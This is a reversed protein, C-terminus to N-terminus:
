FEFALEAAAVTPPRPPLAGTEQLGLERRLRKNYTDALKRSTPGDVPNPDIITAVLVTALGVGSVISGAIIPRTDRALCQDNAVDVKRCSGVLGWTILGGGGLMLGTGGLGISLRMRNRKKYTAVLDPREVLELFELTELRQRYKGQYPEIWQDMARGTATDFLQVESFGIYREEYLEQPSQHGPESPESPEDPAPASPPSDAARAQLPQGAEAAFGAMRRGGLDYLSVVASAPGDGRPFVRVVMVRDVPLGKCREVIQVDSLGELNGLASDDMVLRVDGSAGLAAELAQAAPRAEPNVGAVLVAAPRVDLQSALAAPPFSASWDQAAASTACLLTLLLPLRM